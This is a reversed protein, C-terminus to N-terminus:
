ETIDKIDRFKIASICGTFSIYWDLSIHPKAIESEMEEKLLKIAICLTLANISELRGLYELVQELQNITEIQGIRPYFHEHLLSDLLPLDTVNYVDKSFIRMFEYISIERSRCMLEFVELQKLKM